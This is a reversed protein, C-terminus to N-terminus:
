ADCRTRTLIRPKQAPEAPLAGLQVRKAGDGTRVAKGAPAAGDPPASDDSAGGERWGRKRVGGVPPALVGYRRSQFCFQCRPM